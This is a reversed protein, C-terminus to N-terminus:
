FQNAWFQTNTHRHTQGGITHTIQTKDHNIKFESGQYHM